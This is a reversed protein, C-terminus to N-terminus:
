CLLIASHKRVFTGGALSVWVAFGEYVRLWCGEAFGVCGEGGWDCVVRSATEVDM